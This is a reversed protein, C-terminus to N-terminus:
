ADALPAHAFQVAFPECWIVVSAVDAPDVAAPLQYNFSGDTAKLEGLDIAGDAYGDASPSLYVHLDPGNTVSFDELRLVHRGPEIEVIRATGSGQHFDDAGRFAGVAIDVPGDASAAGDGTPSPGAIEGSQTPSPTPGGASQTPSVTPEVIAVPLEEVLQSRIILPSALYWALPGVVILLGAGAVASRGPHRRVTAVLRNLWGTRVAILLVIAATAAFAVLLITRNPWITTAFFRELDGLFPM